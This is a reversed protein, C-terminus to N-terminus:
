GRAALAGDIVKVHDGVRWTPQAAYSFHRVSGDEMRVKVQYNITSRTRKEVENGAYGGGVAGAVTALSRGNGNGVQNGLVGGLVAGAVVGLGTPKAAQQIAQVSEVRGCNDCYGAVAPTAHQAIKPARYQSSPVAPPNAQPTRNAATKAGDAAAVSAAAPDANAPASLSAAPANSSHSAPLVGTIAAVGVLSVLIVAAAAAAILPHIRNSSKIHEM